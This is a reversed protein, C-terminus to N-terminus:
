VIEEREPDWRVTRHKRYSAVAMACAMSVRYGIEFSCNVATGTRIGALFNRVHARPETRTLGQTERGSPRNVKQPWYRLQQGRYLTGDTGLLYEGTGLHSNGFSSRWNFAFGESHEMAVGMTDPVERADDFLRSSGWATVETPISLALIKYWFALQQSLCEHVSGGSYDWYLRWNVFREADFKRVPSGSHFAEWRINEPTM